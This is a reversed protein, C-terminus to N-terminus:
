NEELISQIAQIKEPSVNLSLLALTPGGSDSGDIEYIQVCNDEVKSGFAPEYTTYTTTEM